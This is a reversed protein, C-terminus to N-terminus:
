RSGYRVKKLTTNNLTISNQEIDYEKEYMLIMKCYIQLIDEFEKNKLESNTLLYEILNQNSFKFGLHLNDINTFVFEEKTDYHEIKTAKKTRKKLNNSKDLIKYFSEDTTIEQDLRTKISITNQLTDFRDLKKVIDTNEKLSLNDKLEKLRTLKEIFINKALAKNIYECVDQTLPILSKNIQIHNIKIAQLLSNLESNYFISLRQAYVKLFNEFENLASTLENLKKKM